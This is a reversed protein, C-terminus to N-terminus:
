SDFNDQKYVHPSEKMNELKAVRKELSTIRPKLETISMQIAILTEQQTSLIRKLDVSLEKIQKIDQEMLKMEGDVFDRVKMKISETSCEKRLEERISNAEKERKDDLLEKTKILEKSWQEKVKLTLYSVFGVFVISFASLIGALQYITVISV